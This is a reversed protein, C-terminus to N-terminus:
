TLKLSKGLTVSSTFSPATILLWPKQSGYGEYEMEKVICSERRCLGIKKWWYFIYLPSYVSFFQAINLCHNITEIISKLFSFLCKDCATCKM